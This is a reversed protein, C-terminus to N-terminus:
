TRILIRAYIKRANGRFFCKDTQSDTQLRPQKPMRSCTILDKCFQFWSPVINHQKKSQPTKRRLKSWKVKKELSLAKLPIDFGYMQQSIRQRQQRSNPVRKRDM